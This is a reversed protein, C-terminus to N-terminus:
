SATYGLRDEPGLFSMFNLGMGNPTNSRVTAAGRLTHGMLKIAFRVPTGKPLPDRSQLFAGGLGIM